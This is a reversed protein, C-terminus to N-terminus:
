ITPRRRGYPADPVDGELPQRGEDWWRKAVVAFQRLAIERVARLALAGVASLLVDALWRRM